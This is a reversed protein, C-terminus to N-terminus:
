ILNFGVARNPKIQDLEIEKITQKNPTAVDGLLADLGTNLIKDAM